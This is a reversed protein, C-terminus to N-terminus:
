RTGGRGSSRSGASDPSTYMSSRSRGPLPSSLDWWCIASIEDNPAFARPRRARGTFLAGYERRPGPALEFGAHGVFRLQGDPEQGSEELLERVAARRASEGPELTGGPLEWAARYRDHVMLIRGRHWLATLAIPMPADGPPPDEGGSEFSVLRNGRCDVALPEATHEPM